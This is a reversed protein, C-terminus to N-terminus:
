KWTALYVNLDCKKSFVALKIFIPMSDLLNKILEHKCFGSLFSSLLLILPKEAVNKWPLCKQTDYVWQSSKATRFWAKIVIM